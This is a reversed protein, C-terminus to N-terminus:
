AASQAPYPKPETVARLPLPKGSEWFQRLLRIAEGTNAPAVVTAFLEGSDVLQRGFDPCGDVGLLRAKLLMERHPGNAVARCATRVGIALEDSQAAIVDIAISRTKFLSYWSDFAVIADSQTWQGAETDYVVIDDRLASKLGQLRELAASSRQPGTVCLVQGGRPLLAAVQQGQIRGIRSHDTSVTGFPFASGWESAYGEVEPTWANMLVLGAKGKLEKLILGTSAVSAPEVIVADLSPASPDALRKRIVRLHDFGPAFVIEAAMGAKEAEVKAEEEQLLQFHDVQGTEKRGILVVLLTKGLLVERHLVIM